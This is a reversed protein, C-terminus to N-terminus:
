MCRKKPYLTASFQFILCAGFLRLINQASIIALLVRYVSLAKRQRGFKPKDRHVVMKFIDWM